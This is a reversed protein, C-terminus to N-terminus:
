NEFTGATKTKIRLPKPIKSEPVELNLKIYIPQFLNSPLKLKQCVSNFFKQYSNLIDQFDNLNMNEKLSTIDKERELLQCERLNELTKVLSALYLWSKKVSFIYYRMKILRDAKGTNIYHSIAWKDRKLINLYSLIKEITLSINKTYLALRKSKEKIIKENIEEKYKGEPFLSLYHIMDKINYSNCLKNYLAEEHLELIELFYKSDPYLKKFSKIYDLNKTSQCKLFLAYELRNKIKETYNEPPKKQLYNLMLEYDNSFYVRTFELKEIHKKILARKSSKKFRKLFAQAEHLSNSKLVKDAIICSLKETIEDVDKGSHYYTLFNEFETQTERELAQKFRLKRIKSKVKKINKYHPYTLNFKLYAELTDTKEIQKYKKEVDIFNKACIPLITVDGRWDKFYAGTPTIKILKKANIVEHRENLQIKKIEGTPIYQLEIYPSIIGTVAKLIKYNTKKKPKKLKYKHLDTDAPKTKCDKKYKLSPELKYLLIKFKENQPSLKLAEKIYYIAKEPVGANYFRKAKKYYDEAESLNLTFIFLIIPLIHFITM